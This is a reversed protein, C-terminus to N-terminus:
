TQPAFAEQAREQMEEPSIDETHTAISWNHGYPDSFKGFRDGWFMDMPPMVETAGAALAQRYGADVDEVYLLVHVPSGGLTQPSVAGQEPNEDSLMLVSSGIQIEAHAVSDGPGEMRFREVAGLANKYFEIAEAANSVVFYPTLSHYGEPIPKVQESM